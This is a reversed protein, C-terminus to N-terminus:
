QKSFFISVLVVLFVVEFSNSQIEREMLMFVLLFILDIWKVSGGDWGM